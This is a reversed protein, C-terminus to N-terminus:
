LEEYCFALIRNLAAHIVILDKGVPKEPRRYIERKYHAVENGLQRIVHLYSTIWPSVNKSEELRQIYGFLNAESSKLSYKFCLESCIAEVLARSQILDASLSPHSISFTEIASDFAITLRNNAIMNKLSKLLDLNKNRLVLADSLALLQETSEESQMDWAREVLDMRIGDGTTIIAKTFHETRSLWDSLVQTFVRIRQKYIDDTLFEIETINAILNKDILNNGIDSFVLTSKASNKNIGPRFILISELACLITRYISSLLETYEARNFEQNKYGRSLV